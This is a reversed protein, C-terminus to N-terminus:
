MGLHADILVAITSMHIEGGAKTLSHIDPLLKSVPDLLQPSMGLWVPWPLKAFLGLSGGIVTSWTVLQLRPLLV